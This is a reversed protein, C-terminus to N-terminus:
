QIEEPMADLYKQMYHSFAPMLMLYDNCFSWLPIPQLNDLCQIKHLVLNQSKCLVYNFIDCTM